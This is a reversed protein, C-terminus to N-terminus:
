LFDKVVKDELKNILFTKSGRKILNCPEDYLHMHM